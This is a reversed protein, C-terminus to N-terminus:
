PMLVIIDAFIDWTSVRMASVSFTPIEQTDDACLWLVAGVSALMFAAIVSVKALM